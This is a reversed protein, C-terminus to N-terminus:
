DAAKEPEGEVTGATGISQDILGARSM